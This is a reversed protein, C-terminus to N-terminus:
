GVHKSMCLLCTVPTDLACERNSEYRKGCAPVWAVGYTEGSMRHPELVHVLGKGDRWRKTKKLSEDVRRWYEEQSRADGHDVVNKSRALCAQMVHRCLTCYKDNPLTNRKCRACMGYQMALTQIYHSM